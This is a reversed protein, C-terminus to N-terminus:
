IRLFPRPLSQVKTSNELVHTLSENCGLIKVVLCINILHATQCFFLGLMQKHGRSLESMTGGSSFNKITRLKETNVLSWRVTAGVDNVHECREDETFCQLVCQWSDGSFEM